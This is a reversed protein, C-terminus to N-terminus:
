PPDGAARKPTRDARYLGWHKEVDDADPGGKWNEDFAEFVVTPVGARAVWAELDALYRAQEVEGLPGKMLKGQDGQDNRRTAWGTEGIMVPRGPHMAAVRGHHREVWTIATDLQCGNWLPHLHVMVFDIEAALARSDPHEWFAFDDGSTVPQRARARVERIADVLQANPVRHASWYVQTENGVVLARVISPYRNALTVGAEIERRNAKAAAPLREILRGGSDWRAEADIWVGLLVGLDLHDDRILELVKPAVESSGYLRLVRWRASLLRLDERLQARSPSRGGPRQGDRHPGYAIAAHAGTTDFARPVLEPGDAGANSPLGALWVLAGISLRVIRM